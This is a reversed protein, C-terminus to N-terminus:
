PVTVTTSVTPIYMKKPSAYNVCYLEYTYTGPTAVTLTQSVPYGNVPATKFGSWGDTGGKAVCWIPDNTASWSLIVTKPSPSAATLKTVPVPSNYTNRSSANDVWASNANGWTLLSEKGNAGKLVNLGGNRPTGGEVGALGEGIYPRSLYHSTNSMIKRREPADYRVGTTNRILTFESDSSCPGNVNTSTFVGTIFENKCIKADFISSPSAPDFIDSMPTCINTVWDCNQDGGLERISSAIASTPQPATVSAIQSTGYANTCTIKFTYNDTSNIADSDIGIVQNYSAATSPINKIGVPLIGKNSRYLSKTWDSSGGDSATCYSPNNTATWTILYYAAPSPMAGWYPKAKITVVPVGASGAQGSTSGSGSSVPATIRLTVPSSYDSWNAQTDCATKCASIYIKVDGVTTGFLDSVKGSWTTLTTPFEKDNLAGDPLDVKIKYNTASQSSWSFNVVTSPFVTKTTGITGRLTVAPINAVGVSGTDCSRSVALVRGDPCTRTMTTCVGNILSQSSNCTQTIPLTTENRSCTMDRIKGRTLPGLAGTQSIGNVRQFAKVARFTGAGFFGTPQSLLYGNDNLFDQLLLVNNSTGSDRSQYQLKIPINVCSSSIDADSENTETANVTSVLLTSSFLLSFVVVFKSIHQM